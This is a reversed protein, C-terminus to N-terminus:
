KTVSVNNVSLTRGISRQFESIAKNLDTRAQLERGRATALETQRQAVLFFTSTGGRFLREESAYLEEAAFRAAVASELRSEVSRLAQLANRVEAEILQEVQARTNAIRDADVLTRGFNAKAIRNGFPLSIALGVRYSPYDFALLNGLSSLLGGVLNPPVRSLGTTPSIAAPTQSGSLGQSTISSVIDIQPRTQDRFFRQEIRNIEATADLQALEPRNKLAEALAIELGIRPGDAVTPTVPILAQSWETSSRDPLMLMKLVNEARTIAEQAAFVNQEFTYIQSNAAVLEIPALVGAGVLRKNSELRERAQLLTESQVQLNRLAFVLDWYAQEVSSIVEVARLRLQADTLNINRKAIEIQRRNNDIRLNRFLPQTYTAVLSTPFQPNLFSNTNSSTTRSNNFTASYQGGYRPSFGSVGSTGFFRSQTVAGNVAGGIASATPTTLREYYGEAVLLPDYVGRAGLLDLDSIRATNRSADIDNNNRLALEVAQSLTLSLQNATEVGVRGASPLPRIPQSFDPATPPADQAVRSPLPRPEVPTPSPTQAGAGAATFCVLCGGLLFKTTTSVFKCFYWDM